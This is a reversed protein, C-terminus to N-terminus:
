GMYGAAVHVLLDRCASWISDFESIPIPEDVPYEGTEVTVSPIDKNIICWDDFAAEHRTDYIIKYSTLENVKKALELSPHIKDQGCDFYIVEGQSHVAISLVPDNLANVYDAMARSEPESLPSEGKYNRFSPQSVYGVDRWGETDFNRNLDVGRANAKWYCLYETLTDSGIYGLSKDSQYVSEIAEKLEPSKIAGIGFQALTVGDPNCMPLIRFQYEEFIESFPIGGYQATDYNYLYFELQKMVLLPTLYERGHIGATVIIQKEATPSGLTVAYINRGDLSKGVSTYSMKGEYEASLKELDDIMESYGYKVKSTDVIDLAEGDVTIYEKPPPDTEPPESSSEEPPETPTPPDTEPPETGGGSPFELFSPLICVALLVLICLLVIASLRIFKLFGQM